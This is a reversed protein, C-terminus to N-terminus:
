AKLITFPARVGASFEQAAELAVQIMDEPKRRRDLMAYMAGLAYDGGCGCADFPALNEAVQFDEEIKFIRNKHVVLFCGGEEQNDKKKTFGGQELIERIAPIFESVMFPFLEEKKEPPEPLKNFMLLQGMRFSSTYGILWSGNRFIKPDRRVSCRFSPCVGLSDAGMWVEGKENKAAVICTM